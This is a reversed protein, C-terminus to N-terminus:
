FSLRVGPKRDYVGCESICKTLREEEVGETCLIDRLCGYSRYMSETPPLMKGELTSMSKTGTVIRVNIPAAQSGEKSVEVFRVGNEFTLGNSKLGLSIDRLASWSRDISKPNLQTLAWEASSRQLPMVVFRIRQIQETPVAREFIDIPLGSVRAESTSRFDRITRSGFRITDLSFNLNIKQRLNVLHEM